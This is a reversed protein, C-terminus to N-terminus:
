QPQLLGKFLVIDSIIRARVVAFRSGDHSWAFDLIMRDDYFKTLQRPPMNPDLPQEWIQQRPLDGRVYAISKDGPKFRIRGGKDGSNVMGPMDLSRLNLCDPLDCVNVIRHTPDGTATVFALKTRDFSQDPTVADIDAILQPQGGEIPVIFPRNFRGQHKKSYIVSRNDRTVIPWNGDDDLKKARRGDPDARILENNTEPARSVYVITSGESTGTPAEANSFGGVPRFDSSLASVTRSDGSHASFWFQDKIWSGVAGSPMIPLVAGTPPVERLDELANGDGIWIDVRPDVKTTVFSDRNRTLSIGVYQSLDKHLLSAVGHPYSLRWFGALGGPKEPRNVILSSNDLWDGNGSPNLEIFAVKKDAKDAVKDPVSVFIWYGTVPANRFATAAIVKGDPSWALRTGAGAPQRTVYFRADPPLDSPRALVTEGLGDFDAVILEEGRRIFAMKWPKNPSWAVPTHVDKVLPHPPEKDNVPVRWLNTKVEGTFELFDVFQGDPTVTAGVIRDGRKSRAIERDGITATQRVWLSDTDGDRRVYAVWEGYPALAPVTANGTTTLPIPEANEMSFTTWSSSSPPSGDPLALYIGGMGALAILAVVAGFLRHRRLLGSVVRRHATSSRVVAAHQSATMAAGSLVDDIETRVDGIDRLRRKADKELCRFLLRRIAHPTATPLAAWDPERDLITAITDSVTDGAFAVKGTLMEYVVCGFAWVDSRKDVGKGRAQEPSMYAATGLIAGERTGGITVTPSRTLPPSSPDGSAATALGFDLVKVIGDPSIKINAPKLDRHVIGKEHAADLADAIQRAVRLTENIPLPGRALRDALTDGAVLELVLVPVGGSDEVGYIAAIHPHNLAALMRAERLFRARRDPDAIFALPLVKIAVDRGLTTDRARYVEGMGGAGILGQIEFAGIRRGIRMPGAASPILGGARAFLPTDLFGDGTPPQALLSEVERRLEVDGGCASELFAAREAADRRSADFYLAEIRAWRDSAPM